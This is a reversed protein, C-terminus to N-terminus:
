IDVLDQFTRFRSVQGHLLRRLELQDDIEFGGLRDPQRNRLGHQGTGVLDDLSRLAFGHAIPEVADNYEPASCGAVASRARATSAGRGSLPVNPTPTGACCHQSVPLSMMPSSRSRIDRSSSM